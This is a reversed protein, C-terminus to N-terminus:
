DLDIIQSQRWQSFLCLYMEGHFENRNHFQTERHSKNKCHKQSERWSISLAPCRSLIASRWIAAPAESKRATQATSQGTQPLGMLRESEAETPYRICGALPDDEYYYAFAAQESALITPFVNTRKGFSRIFQQRNRNAAAGRMKFGYFPLIVPIQRGAESAAIRHDEATPLGSASCLRSDTHMSRTNFLIEAARQGTFDAVVFIRERRALKPKSWYQADLVRWALDCRRGRVMGADAWHGSDPMSVETGAFSKLVALYDRKNGSLMAGIVNEWVAIAPYLGGSADRMEEIIRIAQYFLSSKAGNLGTRNGIQSLNQCPSGLTIVHVAPIKGGDLKTIDGLHVMEPFHRKTISIADPIIESAWVPTIGHRSAALPFVGIGDFLSGLTITM